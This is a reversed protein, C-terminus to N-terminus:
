HTLNRDDLRSDIRAFGRANAVDHKPSEVAAEAAGIGLHVPFPVVALGSPEIQVDGGLIRACARSAVIGFVCGEDVM